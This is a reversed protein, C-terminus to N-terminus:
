DANEYRQQIRILPGSEWSHERRKTAQLSLPKEQISWALAVEDDHAVLYVEYSVRMVQPNAIFFIVSLIM